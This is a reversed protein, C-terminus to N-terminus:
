LCKAQGSKLIILNMWIAAYRDDGDIKIGKEEQSICFGTM